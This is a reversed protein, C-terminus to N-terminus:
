SVEWQLQDHARSDPFGFKHCQRGHHPDRTPRWPINARIGGAQHWVKRHQREQPAQLQDEGAGPRALRPAADAQGRGHVQGQEGDRHQHPRHRLQAAGPGLPLRLPGPLRRGRGAAGPAAPHLLPLLLPHLRPRHAGPRPRDARQPRGAVPPAQGGGLRRDQVRLQQRPGAGPLLRPVGVERRGPPRSHAVRWFDAPVCVARQLLRLHDRRRGGGNGHVLRGGM